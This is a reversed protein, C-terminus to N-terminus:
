YARLSDSSRDTYFSGESIISSNIAESSMMEYANRYVQPSPISGPLRSVDQRRKLRYSFSYAIYAQYLLIPILIFDLSFFPIVLSDCTEYEVEHNSVMIVFCHAVLSLPLFIIDIGFKVAKWYLLTDCGSTSLESSSRYGQLGPYIGLTSVSFYLFEIFSLEVPRNTFLQILFMLTLLLSISSFILEVMSVAALGTQLTTSFAFTKAPPLYCLPVVSAEKEGNQLGNTPIEQSQINPNCANM